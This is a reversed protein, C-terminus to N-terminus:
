VGALRRVERTGKARILERIENMARQVLSAYDSLRGIELSGSAILTTAIERASPNKKLFSFCARLDNAKEGADTARVEGRCFDDGYLENDWTCAHLAARRYICPMCRGCAKAGRHTWHIKHGRKACSVSLPVCQELMDRNRCTEVVEGKTKSELPNVLPHALGLGELVRGVLALFHPHATRTSCSGRRSPTLPVNLAITGNEPILLPVDPGLSSAAFVGLAIFALSRSRLTIETEEVVEGVHGVRALLSSVRMGYHPQLVELLSRQDSFPGAIQAEHHGVLLLGRSAQLELWDIAGVLSDLGGSFLCVTEGRPRLTVSRRRRRRRRPRELRTDCRAFRVTWEDGTLFSLCADLTQRVRNWPATDSVPVVLTFTRTWGDLAGRRVVLKDIAYVAAALILFEIARANSNRLPALRSYQIDLECLKGSEGLLAIPAFDEHTRGTPRIDLEFTM